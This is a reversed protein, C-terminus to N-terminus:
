KGYVRRWWVKQHEKPKTFFSQFAPFLFLNENRTPSPIQSSIKQIFEKNEVKTLLSIQSESIGLALVEGGMEVLAIYKQPALCQSALVRIGANAAGNGSGMKRGKMLRSFFFLVLLITGLVLIMKIIAWTMDM